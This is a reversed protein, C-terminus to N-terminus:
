LHSAESQSSIRNVLYIPLDPTAGRQSCFYAAVQNANENLKSLPWGAILGLCLTAAFADGAGVSDVMETPCGPHDSLEARSLLLSGNAGRTYAICDLEFREELVLLQAEVSGELAFLDALVPLEEDSLKFVTVQELSEQLISQSFYDQRLNVDFLKLAQPSIKGLFALITARSVSHRQALSGFYVADVIPAMAELKESIGLVDWAVGERIDYSPTGNEDLTVQVSGTDHHYDKSVYASDMRLSALGEMLEAGNEDAGVCSVPYGSAGLQNCHRAFNVPAGVLTKGGRFVDWLLEGIGVVIPRVKTLSM